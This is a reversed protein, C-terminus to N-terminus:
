QALLMSVNFMLSSVAAIGQSTRIEYFLRPLLCVIRYGESCNWNGWFCRSTTVFVGFQCITITQNANVWKMGSPRKRYGRFIDSFWLNESTKLPYLIVGTVHFPNVFLIFWLLIDSFHRSFHSLFDVSTNVVSFCFLSCQCNKQLKKCAKFSVVIIFVIVLVFIAVNCFM